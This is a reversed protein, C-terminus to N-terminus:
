TLREWQWPLGINTIIRGIRADKTLPALFYGRTIGLLALADMTAARLPAVADCAEIAALCRSYGGLDLQM